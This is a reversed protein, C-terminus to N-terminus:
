DSLFDDDWNERRNPKTGKKTYAVGTSSTLLGDMLDDTDNELDNWDEPINEDREKAKWGYIM